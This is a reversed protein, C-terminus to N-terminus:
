RPTGQLRRQFFQRCVRKILPLYWIATYHGTPLSYREPRGLAEYLEDQLFSPVSTDRRTSVLLLREPDAYPALAVPCTELVPSALAEFAALEEPLQAASVGHSRAVREPPRESTRAIVAPLPGGAMVAAAAKIRPDVEALVTTTIGGLSVGYAGIAGPDVEPRTLLWDLVRRRDAIMDAFALEVGEVSADEFLRPSRDVIVAHLGHRVLDDALMKAVTNAGGLIPTILIAPGRPDSTIARYYHFTARHPDAEGPRRVQVSGTIVTHGDVQRSPELRPDLPLDPVSRLRADITAPLPSAAREHTPTHEILGVYALGLLAALAGLSLALTRGARRWRPRTRAQAPTTV